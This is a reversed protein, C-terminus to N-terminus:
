TPSLLGWGNKVVEKTNLCHRGLLLGLNDVGDLFATIFFGVRQALAAIKVHQADLDPHLRALREVHLKPHVVRDVVHLLHDHLVLAITQIVHAEVNATALEMAFVRQLVLPDFVLYPNHV